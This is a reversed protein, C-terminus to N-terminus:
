ARKEEFPKRPEGEVFMRYGFPVPCREAPHNPLTDDTPFVVQDWEEPRYNRYHYIKGAGLSTYGVKRVYDNICLGRGIHPMWVQQNHYIGTTSPRMGSMFATRSPNCLPAPCLANRFTVGRAALKDLSPTQAQPHGGMPGIWDNLDDSIILLINPKAEAAVTAVPILFSATIATVVVAVHQVYQTMGIRWFAPQLSGGADDCQVAPADMQPASYFGAPTRGYQGSIAPLM